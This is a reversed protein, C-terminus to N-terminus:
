ELINYLLNKFKCVHVCMKMQIGFAISNFAYGILRKRKCPWLFSNYVSSHLIVSRYYQIKYSQTLYITYSLRLCPLGKPILGRTNAIEKAEARRSPILCKLLKNRGSDLGTFSCNYYIKYSSRKPRVVPLPKNRINNSTNSM